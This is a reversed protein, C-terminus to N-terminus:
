KNKPHYIFNHINRRAIAMIIGQPNVGPASPLISADNIYLDQQGYVKGFSNVAHIKKNEGMPCSSFLHITMLNSSIKPIKAPIRELDNKTKIAGFNKISPYINKSGAAILVECMKKLATSLLGLDKHNLKYQVVPDNFFPITWIKGVSEPKIMAYYIAMMEWNNEVKNFYKYNDLMSLALYPKSSISCGISIEPSFEKVQHIPVGMEHSNIKSDFEAVVKITPHMQLTNGINKSIGSKKLIVPTSIAGCCLFVFKSKIKIIEKTKLNECTIVWFDKIRKLKNAKTKSLLKGGSDLYWKIYTETMSQKKAKGNGFKFWRPIELNEWGLKDAGEKLKLSAKAIDSTNPIYSVSIEKEIKEYHPELDSKEFNLINNERRWSKMMEDPLRHYFGSNVESGGGVCSGEVYTIKPNNITPTLGGNKYKQEMELTSYSPSSDLPLNEGAEILLVEKNNKKLEWATVAGGPGSGIILNEVLIM